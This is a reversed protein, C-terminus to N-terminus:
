AHNWRHVLETKTMIRGWTWYVRRDGNYLLWSIYKLMGNYVVLM